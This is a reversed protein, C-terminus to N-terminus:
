AVQGGRDGALGSLSARNRLRSLQHPPAKFMTSTSSSGNKSPGAKSPGVQSRHRTIRLAAKASGMLASSSPTNWSSAPLRCGGLSRTRSNHTTLPLRAPLSEIALAM